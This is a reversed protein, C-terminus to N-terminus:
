PPILGANSVLRAATQLMERMEPDNMYKALADPGGEMAEKMIKQFDPKSLMAMIEPNQLLIQVEDPRLGGPVTGDSGTIADLRKRLEEKDAEVKKSSDVLVEARLRNFNDLIKTDAKGSLRADKLRRRLESVEFIDSYGVGRLDM